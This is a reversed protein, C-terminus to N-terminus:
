ESYNGKSYKVVQFNAASGTTSIASGTASATASGADMNFHDLLQERRAEILQAVREELGRASVHRSYPSGVGDVGKRSVGEEGAGIRYENEDSPEGEPSDILGGIDTSFDIYTRM